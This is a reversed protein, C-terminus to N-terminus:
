SHHCQIKSNCSQNEHPCSSNQSTSGGAGISNSRVILLDPVYCLSPEYGSAWHPIRRCLPRFRWHTKSPCVYTNQFLAIVLCSMITALYRPHANIKVNWHHVDQSSNAPAKVRCPLPTNKNLGLRKIFTVRNSIIM